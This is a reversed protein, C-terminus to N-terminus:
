IELVSSLEELPKVWREGRRDFRFGLRRCVETYKRFQRQDMPATRKVYVYGEEVGVCVPLGSFVRRVEELVREVWGGEEGRRRGDGASVVGDRRKVDEAADATKGAQATKELRYGPATGEFVAEVGLDLRSQM